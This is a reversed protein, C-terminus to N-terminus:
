HRFARKPFQDSVALKIRMFHERTSQSSMPGIHAFLQILGNIINLESSLLLPDRDCTM